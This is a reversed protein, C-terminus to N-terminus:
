PKIGIILQQSSFCRPIISEPHQKNFEATTLISATDHASGVLTYESTTSVSCSILNKSYAGGKSTDNAYEGKSCAYLSVQQPIAEMIRKEFKARTGQYSYLKLTMENRVSELVTQPYCRCCDYINLQRISIERLESESILEGKDNLELMTERMQGGHGSFIVILYDLKMIKLLTIEWEIDAKSSNLKEIIEGDNWEGGYNSKFFKKYNEMDVKVGPLGNNNGIILVRKKM